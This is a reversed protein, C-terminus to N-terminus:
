EDPLELVQIKRDPQRQRMKGVADDAKDTRHDRTVHDDVSVYLSWVPAQPDLQKIPHECIPCLLWSKYGDTTHRRRITLEM